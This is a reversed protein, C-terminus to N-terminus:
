HSRSGSKELSGHELPIPETNGLAEWLVEAAAEANRGVYFEMVIYSIDGAQDLISVIHPHSLRSLVEAERDFRAVFGQESALEPALVKIAVTRDLSLQRARFVVGMAGRGVEDLLEFGPVEIKALGTAGAAPFEPLDTAEDLTRVIQKCEPCNLTATGQDWSEIDIDCSCNSCTISRDSM